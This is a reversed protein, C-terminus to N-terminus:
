DGTVVPQIDVASVGAFALVSGAPLAPPPSTDPAGGVVVDGGDDIIDAARLAAANALPGVGSDAIDTVDIHLTAPATSGDADAVTYVFDEAAPGSVDPPTYTFDGTDFDFQLIGGLDTNIVIVQGDNSIVDGGSSDPTFVEAGQQLQVIQPDGPGDAGFNDNTLVNGSVPNDVTSVLTDVLQTEETLILLSSPDNPFAVDVLDPDAAVIGPAIGVAFAHAIGNGPDALFSEWDDVLGADALSEGPTPAGDSLFYIEAKDAPPAGAFADMAMQVAAAYSTGGAPVLTALYANAEAVSSLWGSATADAAFDVIQINLQAAPDHAAFLAAIAAGAADLRTAFGDVSPALGMSASTDLIIMLNIAQGQQDAAAVVDDVPAPVADPVITVKFATDAFDGDADTARAVVIYTGPDLSAALTVQGTVPDIVFQGDADEILTFVVPGNLVPTNPQVTLGVYEGAENTAVQNPTAADSDILPTRPAEPLFIPVPSGGIDVFQLETADLGLAALLEALALALNLGYVDVLAQPIPPGQAQEVPIGSEGAAPIINEIDGRQEPNQLQPFQQEMMRLADNFLTGAQEPSLLFTQSPAQRSSAVQTSEFEQDLVAVGAANTVTFRSLTGDPDRFLTFVWSGTQPDQTGAGSTGRIGISGAPTDISVGEGESKGIQGTIFVFSGKVVTADLGNNSGAPDYILSDLRMQGNAGLAFTTSDLFMIEVAAGPGTAVIDNAFVPLGVAAAESTGDSHVILVQGTAQRVAGIPDGSAGAQALQLDAIGEDQLLGGRGDVPGEADVM